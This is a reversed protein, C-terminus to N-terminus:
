SLCNNESTKRRCAYMSHPHLPLSRIYALDSGSINQGNLEKSLHPLHHHLTLHNPMNKITMAKSIVFCFTSISSNLYRALNHLNTLACKSHRLVKFLRAPVCKGASGGNRQSYQAHLNSSKIPVFITRVSSTQHNTVGQLVSRDALNNSQFGMSGIAVKVFLFIQRYLTTFTEFDGTNNAKLNIIIRQLEALKRDKTQQADRAEDTRQGYASDFAM